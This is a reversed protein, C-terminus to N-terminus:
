AQLKSQLLAELALVESRFAETPGDRYLEDRRLADQAAELASQTHGREARVSALVFSLMASKHDVKCLQDLLGEAEDYKGAEGLALAREVLQELVAPDLDLLDALSSQGPGLDDLLEALESPPSTNLAGMDDWMQAPNVM